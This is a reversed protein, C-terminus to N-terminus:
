AIIFCSSSKVLGHEAREPLKQIGLYDVLFQDLATPLAIISWFSNINGTAEQSPAPTYRTGPYSSIQAWM